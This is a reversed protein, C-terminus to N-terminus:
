AGDSRLVKIFDKEYLDEAGYADAFEGSLLMIDFRGYAAKSLMLAANETRLEMQNEPLRSQFSRALELGAADTDAVVCHIDEFLFSIEEGRFFSLWTALAEKDTHLNQNFLVIYEGSPQELIVSASSVADVGKQFAGTKIVPLGVLLCLALLVTLAHRLVSM